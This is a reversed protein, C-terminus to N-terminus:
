AVANPAAQAKVHAAGEAPVARTCSIHPPACCEAAPDAGGGPYAGWPTRGGRPEARGEQGQTETTRHPLSRLAATCRRLIVICFLPQPMAKPTIRTRDKYKM